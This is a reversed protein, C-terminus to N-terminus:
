PQRALASRLTPAAGSTRGIPSDVLVSTMTGESFFTIDAPGSDTCRLEPTQGASLTLVGTLPIVQFLSAPEPGAALASTRGGPKYCATIQGSAASGSALAIGSTAMLALAAGAALIATVGLWHRRAPGGPRRSAGNFVITTGRRMRHTLRGGPVPWGGRIGPQRTGPWPCMWTVAM